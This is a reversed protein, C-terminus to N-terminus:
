ITAVEVELIHDISSAFLNSALCIIFPRFIVPLVACILFVESKHSGSFGTVMDEKYHKYLM